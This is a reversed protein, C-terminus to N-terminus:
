LKLREEETMKLRLKSDDAMTKKFVQAPVGQERLTREMHLLVKGQLDAPIARGFDVTVESDRM